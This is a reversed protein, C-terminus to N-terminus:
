KRIELVPGRSTSKVRVKKADFWKNRPVLGTTPNPKKKSSKKAVRKRSKM